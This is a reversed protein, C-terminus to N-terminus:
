LSSYVEGHKGGIDDCLMKFVESEAELISKAYLSMFECLFEEDYQEPHNGQTSFLFAHALEHRLVKGFASVSLERAVAIVQKACWTAGTRFTNNVCLLPDHSEVLKVQWELKNITIKM